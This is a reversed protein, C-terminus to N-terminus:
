NEAPRELRDIILVEIPARTSELRLGLQERLATSVSPLGDITAGTFPQTSSEFSIKYVGSLGTKDIVPRGLLARLVETFARITTEGDFRNGDM